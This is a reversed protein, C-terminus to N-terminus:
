QFLKFLKLFYNFQPMFEIEIPFLEQKEKIVKKCIFSELIDKLSIMFM